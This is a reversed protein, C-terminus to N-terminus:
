DNGRGAMPYCPEILNLLSKWPVVQDM